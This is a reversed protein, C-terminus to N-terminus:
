GKDASRSCDVDSFGSSSATGRSPPPYPAGPDSGHGLSKSSRAERNHSQKAM